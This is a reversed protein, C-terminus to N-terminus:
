EDPVVTNGLGLMERARHLSLMEKRSHRTEALHREIAWVLEILDDRSSAQRLRLLMRAGFVPSDIRLTEFLLSRVHELKETEAEVRTGATSVVEAAAVRQVEDRLSLAPVARAADRAAHVRPNATAQPRTVPQADVSPPAAASRGAPPRGATPPKAKAAVVADAPAGRPLPLPPAVPARPGADLGPEPRAEALLPLARARPTEVPLAHVVQPPYGSPIVDGIDDLASEPPHTQMQVALTSASAATGQQWLTSASLSATKPGAQALPAVSAWKSQGGSTFGSNRARREPASAERGAPIDPMKVMGMQLLEEFHSTQAGAQQALNLVDRLSRRGDVLLLVTRLRQGLTRSRGRLEDAGLETKVPVRNMAM